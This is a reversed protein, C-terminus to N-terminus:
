AGRPPTQLSDDPDTTERQKQDHRAVAILWARVDPNQQCIAIDQDIAEPSEGISELWARLSNGRHHTGIGVERKQKNASARKLCTSEDAKVSERCAKRSLPVGGNCDQCVWTDWFPRDMQYEDDSIDWCLSVGCKDCIPTVGGPTTSKSVTVGM